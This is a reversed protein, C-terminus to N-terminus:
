SSRRALPEEGSGTLRYSAWYFPNSYDSSAIMLRQARALADAPPAGRLAEYFTRAVVGASRDEVRWLTAVVDRAGALLFAQALTAYDEGPTFDTSWAPGLGTDCGSLFVLSSRIRLALLEHVELRGDDSPDTAAGQREARLQVYSFMPHSPLLVAHSAVHVIRSRALASRLRAETAAVGEDRRAGSLAASVARVEMDSSPLARPFPALAELSASRPRATASRAESRLAVLVAASPADLLVHDQVLYRGTFPDQLAAFPVYALPGHPVIVLRTASGLGAARFAPQVLDRYLAALVGRAASGSSNAAGAAGPRPTADRRALLGRALRVRSELNRATVASTAVHLGGQRTVVFVLVRGPMVFYELLAEDPRLVRRVQEVTTRAQGLLAAAPSRKAALSVLLDEYEGRARALRRALDNREQAAPGRSHAPTGEVTELGAALTDIQRLLLDEHAVQDAVTDTRLAALGAAPLERALTRARARDAIEFAESPRNSQLLITVLDAYTRARSTAYSTRLVGSPFRRRVQEVRTVARRGAARASDLRDLRLEARARLAEAEWRESAAVFPLDRLIGHLAQLVARSDGSVDAIRARSLALDVRAARSGLERALRAAADLQASVSDPRGLREDLEALLLRDELEESRYGLERHIRLSESVGRHAAPLSGLSTQVLAELRLEAAEEDRLGLEANLRRARELYELSRQSAGAERYFEGIQELSAAEGPRDGTTRALALSSDLTARAVAPRGMEQYAWGLQGLAVEDNALGEARYIHHAETLRPVAGGPDGVTLDLMGLNTLANAQHLSDGSRRALELQAEFGRRAQDFEGWDVQVLALNAYATALNTPQASRIAADAAQRYDRAAEDLRSREWALLGLANYSKFLQDQLGARRKLALARTQLQDALPYAGQHWATLGLWTLARAETSTDGHGAASARVAQFGTRASDYAGRYYRARNLALLSDPSLARSEPGARTPGGRASEVPVTSAARPSARGQRQGDHCALAALALLLGVAGRSPRRM